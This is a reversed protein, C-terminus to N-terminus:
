RKLIDTVVDCCLYGNTQNGGYGKWIEIRRIDGYQLRSPM